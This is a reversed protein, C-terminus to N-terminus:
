YHNHENNYKVVASDITTIFAKCGNTARICAWRKKPGMTRKNNSHAFYRCKGHQLMTRGTRSSTVFEICGTIINFIHLVGDRMDAKKLYKSM